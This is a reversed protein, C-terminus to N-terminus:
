INSLISFEIKLFTRKLGERLQEHSAVLHSYTRAAQMRQWLVLHGSNVANKEREKKGSCNSKECFPNDYKESIQM